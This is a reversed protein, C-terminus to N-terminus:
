INAQKIGKKCITGCSCKGCTSRNKLVDEDKLSDHFVKGWLTQILIWILLIIILISFTILYRELMVKGM